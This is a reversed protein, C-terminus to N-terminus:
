VLASYIYQNYVTEWVCDGEDEVWCLHSINAIEHIFLSGRKSLTQLGYTDSIYELTDKMELVTLNNFKTEIEQITDVEAYRGLISTQWPVALFFNATSFSGFQSWRYTNFLSHQYQVDPNEITHLAVAKQMKGYYDKPGYVSFNFATEPLYANLLAGNAISEEVDDSPGIFQGNQLGALSIFRKVKHDDMEEIVARAILGGLSHGIFIYGNDFVSNNVVVEHVAKLAEPVQLLLSKVSCIGDCFSLSVVTRGEATLNAVFNDGAEYTMTAGHFFIVPLNSAASAVSVFACAVLALLIMSRSSPKWSLLPTNSVFQFPLEFFRQSEALVTAWSCGTDKDDVAWCGHSVNAIEHLFLGGRKELTQLGFTDATYELTDKMDVVTLNNYQTEIEEITDVESYRGFICSQWPMIVDDAPSTFFHAEELKLFNAKRRNKDYICQDNGPLCQNVNNYVPLFFNATSFSGFQPWRNVNFQSYHLLTIPSPSRSRTPALLSVTQLGALSIFRKVKHDDMEEIVARAIPGGQSHAIFIYGDDFVSNNAVVERVTEVAKPVQLLLSEKSCSGDCFSLSVVTRGEATLNAVFNDGAEYTSFVGHFFIVPLDSAASAVRGFISSQWPMIREDAASAFFHAEELKLFNAKRRQQDYICQNDGPLCRNVNNYVPLFFNATSFSGFQPWRNVNFQSYTYQADPNEISYLVYDKQMKGYYDEPGYASYNFMTEPVLAALFPADNKISVEVKDPGIFQGNQLGATSIYRKVKHDDMEEIVARSIAGGQSHGIFIYGDDFESSNAVIERIQAIAKPVQLVIAELSCTTECFSLPVVTRGEVSVFM